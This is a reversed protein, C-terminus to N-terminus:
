WKDRSRHALRKKKRKDHRGRWAKSLKELQKKSFKPRDGDTEMTDESVAVDGGDSVPVGTDNSSDGSSAM